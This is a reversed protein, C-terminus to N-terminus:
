YHCNFRVLLKTIQHIFEPYHLNSKEVLHKNILITLSEIDLIKCTNILTFKTAKVVDPSTDNLTILLHIVLNSSEELLMEKLDNNKMLHGIAEISKERIHIKERNFLSKMRLVLNTVLNVILKLDIRALVLCLSNLAEYKIRDNTDDSDDVSDLANVLASVIPLVFKYNYTSNLQEITGLGKVCYLRVIPSQDNVMNLITNLFPENLTEKDPFDTLSLLYSFFALPVLRREVFKHNLSATFPNVLSSILSPQYLHIGKALIYISSYFQNPEEMLKFCGEKELMLLMRDYKLLNLYQKLTLIASKIPRFRKIENIDINEISMNSVSSTSKNTVNTVNSVDTSNSQNSVHSANSLSSINEEAHVPLNVFEQDLNKRSNDQLYDVNIYSSITLILSSFLKDSNQHVIDYLEQNKFLEGLGCIIALCNSKAIANSTKRKDYFVLNDENLREICWTILHRSLQNSESLSRWFSCLQDDFPLPFTVLHNCFINLHNSALESLLDVLITNTKVYDLRTQYITDILKQVDNRLEVIFNKTLGLVMQSTSSTKKLGGYQNLSSILKVILQVPQINDKRLKITMCKTLEKILDELSMNPQQKTLKALKDIVEDDDTNKSQL